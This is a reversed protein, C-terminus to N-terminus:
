HKRDHARTIMSEQNRCLQTVHSKLDAVGYLSINIAVLFCPDCFVEEGDQGEEHNRPPLMVTPQRAIRYRRPKERPVRSYFYVTHSQGSGLMIYLM